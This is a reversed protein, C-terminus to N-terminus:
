VDSKLKEAEAKADAILKAAEAKADALLKEAETKAEAIVAKADASLKTADTLAAAVLQTARSAAEAKADAILKKADAEVTSVTPSLANAVKVVGNISDAYATALEAAFPVHTFNVVSVKGDTHLINVSYTGDTNKLVSASKISIAMIGGKSKIKSRVYYQSPPIRSSSIQYRPHSDFGSAM